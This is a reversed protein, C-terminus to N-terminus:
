GALQGEDQFVKVANQYQHPAHILIFIAIQNVFAWPYPTSLLPQELRKFSVIGKWPRRTAGEYIQHPIVEILGEAFLKVFALDSKM